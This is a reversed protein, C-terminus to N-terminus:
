FRKHTNNIFMCKLRYYMYKILIIPANLTSSIRSLLHYKSGNIIRKLCQGPKVHFYRSSNALNRFIDIIEDRTVYEGWASRLYMKWYICESQTGNLGKWPKCRYMHIIKNHMDQTMDYVNFKDDIIKIDGFFISNIADQDPYLPLHIHKEFWNMSISCLNGRLRIKKLNMVAVGSNIYSKVNEGSIGAKLKRIFSNKARHCRVDLSGALSVADININWLENIDLNVLVDCDLYIVKEISTLINPIFM